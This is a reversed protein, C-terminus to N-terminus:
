WLGFLAWLGLLGGRLGERVVGWWCRRLWGREGMSGKRSDGFECRREVEESVVVVVVTRRM